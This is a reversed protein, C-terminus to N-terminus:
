KPVPAVALGRLLFQGEDKEVDTDAEGNAEEGAEVVEAVDAAEEHTQDETDCDEVGRNGEALLEALWGVRRHCGRVHM